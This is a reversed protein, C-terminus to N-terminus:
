VSLFQISGQGSVTGTTIAGVTAVMNVTNTGDSQILWQVALHAQPATLSSLTTTAKNVEAGDLLLQIAYTASGTNTGSFQLESRVIYNGKPVTIVGVNDITFGKIGDTSQSDVFFNTTTSAPLNQPTAKYFAAVRNNTQFVLDNEGLVEDYFAVTGRCHVEGVETSDEEGQVSVFVNGADYTKIDTNGPLNAARVFLPYGQPHLRQVDVKLLSNQNPMCVVHPNTMEINIKSTPNPQEADYLASLLVLGKAGQNAFQSVSHQFYFELKTFKYREYLSAFRSLRPFVGLQGPNLALSNTQFSLSGKLSAICVEDFDEFRVKPKIVANVCDFGDNFSAGTRSKPSRMQIPPDISPGKRNQKNQTRVKLSKQPSSKGKNDQKSKMTRQKQM